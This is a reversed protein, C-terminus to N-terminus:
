QIVKIIRTTNDSMEIKFIKLGSIFINELIYNNNNVYPDLHLKKGEIDYLEVSQIKNNNSHFNFHNNSYFFNFKDYVFNSTSLSTDSLRAIGRSVIGNVSFFSGAILIKNDNTIDIVYVTDNPGTGISFFSDSTGDVNLRIIRDNVIGNNFNLNGGILLKDTFPKIAYVSNNSTTGSLLPLSTFSSDISGNSNLKILTFGDSQNDNVMSGGVLITQDSQIFIKNAVFNFGSFQFTSDISGDLNFRMLPIGSAPGIAVLIKGDTQSDIDKVIEIGQFVNNPYIFSTDYSGDSNLRIFNKSSYGISNFSGGVLIKSDSTIKVSNLTRTGFSPSNFLNIGIFTSDISGDDNLRVICNRSSGRYTTFRGVALVKGNSDIALDYIVGPNAGFAIGTGTNFSLDLTGDPFLRAIGNRTVGNYSIFSGGIIIKGDAQQVMAFLNGSLGSNGPNFTPDVAYTQGFFLRPIVLLVVLFIQNIFRM